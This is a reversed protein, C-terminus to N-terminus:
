DAPRGLRRLGRAALAQLRTLEDTLVQSGRETLRYPQRRDTTPLAEILGREELRALAAYLTGPGLSRGTEREVATKIAYGHAAGDSLVVLIEVSAEALGGLDAVPDDRTM